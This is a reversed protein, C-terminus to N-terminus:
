KNPPAHIAEKTRGITWDTRFRVQPNPIWWFQGGDNLVVGWFTDWDIGMDMLLIAVGDGKSTALPRPERLEHIIM